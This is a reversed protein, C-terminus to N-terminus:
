PKTRTWKRHFVFRTIGQYPMRGCSPAFAWMDSHMSIDGPQAECGSADQQVPGTLWSDCLRRARVLGRQTGVVRPRAEPEAFTRSHLGPSAESGRALFNEPTFDCCDEAFMKRITKDCFPRRTEPNMTARPCAPEHDCAPVRARGCGRLARRWPNAQRVDCLPCHLPAESPTLLVPRGPKGERQKGPSWSPDEDVLKFFKHPACREPIVM